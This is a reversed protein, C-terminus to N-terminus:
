IDKIRANSDKYGKVGTDQISYTTNKIRAEAFQNSTVPRRIVM